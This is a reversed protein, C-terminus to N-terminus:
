VPDRPVPVSSNVTMFSSPSCFEGLNPLMSVKSGVSLSQSGLDQQLWGEADGSRCKCHRLLPSEPRDQGPQPLM